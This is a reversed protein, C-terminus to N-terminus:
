LLLDDEMKYKKCYTFYRDYDRKNFKKVVHKLSYKYFVYSFVFSSMVNSLIYIKKTNNRHSLKQTIPFIICYGFSFTFIDWYSVALKRLKLYRMMIDYKEDVIVQLDKDVETNKINMFELNLM